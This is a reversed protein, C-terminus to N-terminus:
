AAVVEPTPENPDGVLNGIVSNYGARLVNQTPLRIIPVESGKAVISAMSKYPKVHGLITPTEDVENITDEKIVTVTIGCEELLWKVQDDITFRWSSEGKQNGNFFDGGAALSNSRLLGHQIGGLAGFMMVAAVISHTIYSDAVEVGRSGAEYATVLRTIDWEKADANSTPSHCYDEKIMMADSLSQGPLCPTIRMCALLNGGLRAQLHLTGADTDYSDSDPYEDISRGQVTHEPHWGSAKVFDDRLEMVDPNIAEPGFGGSIEITKLLTPTAIEAM